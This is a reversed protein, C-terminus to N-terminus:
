RLILVRKGSWSSVNFDSEIEAHAKYSKTQKLTLIVVPSIFEDDESIAQFVFEGSEPILVDFIYNRNLFGTWVPRPGGNKKWLYGFIKTPQAPKELQVSITEQNHESVVNVDGAPQLIRLANAEREIKTFAQFELGESSKQNDEDTKLTTPAQEMRVYIRNKRLVPSEGNNAKKEGISKTKYFNRFLKSAMVPNKSIEGLSNEEMTLKAKQKKYSYILRSSKGVFVVDGANLPHDFKLERWESQGFPRVLVRGFMQSVSAVADTHDPAPTAYKLLDRLLWINIAITLLFFFFFRFIM